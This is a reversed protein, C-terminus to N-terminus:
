VGYKGEVLKLEDWMNRWERDKNLGYVGAFAWPFDDAINHFLTNVVIWM